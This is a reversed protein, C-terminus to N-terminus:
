LWLNESKEFFHKKQRKKSGKVEAPLNKKSLLLGSGRTNVTYLFQSLQQINIIVKWSGGLFQCPETLLKFFAHKKQRISYINQKLVKGPCHHIKSKNYFFYCFESLRLCILGPSRFDQWVLSSLYFRGHWPGVQKSRTCGATQLLIKHTSSPLSLTRSM